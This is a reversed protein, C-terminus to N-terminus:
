PESAEEIGAELQEVVEVMVKHLRGRLTDPLLALAESIEQRRLAHIQEVLRKGKPRLAVVRVRRDSKSEQRSILGGEVLRDVMQSAAPTSLKTFKAIQSISQAGGGGLVYLVILQPFTLGSQHMVMLSRSGSRGNVVTNFRQILIALDENM